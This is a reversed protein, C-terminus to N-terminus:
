IVMTQATKMLVPVQTLELDHMLMVMCNELDISSLVTCESRNWIICDDHLCRLSSHDTQLTFEQSLLYYSFKVTGFNIIAVLM